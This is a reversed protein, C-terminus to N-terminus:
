FYEQTNLITKIFSNEDKEKVFKNFDDTAEMFVKHVELVEENFM